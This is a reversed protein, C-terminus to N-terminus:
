FPNHRTSNHLSKNYSHKIYPLIGDWTYPNKYNYMRLIHVIMRNVVKTQGDTQLHFSTLQTLKSDMISWLICYFTGLFISDRDSIITQPLKFHVWACEFFLKATAEVTISKNCSISIVMKSFLDIVVFVCDNGHKTSHLVSMYEM